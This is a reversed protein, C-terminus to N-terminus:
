FSFSYLYLHLINFTQLYLFIIINSSLTTFRNVALLIRRNAAKSNM